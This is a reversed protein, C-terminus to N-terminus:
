QGTYGEYEVTLMMLGVDNGPIWSEGIWLDGLDDTLLPLVLRGLLLILPFRECFFLFKSM